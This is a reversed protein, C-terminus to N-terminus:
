KTKVDNEISAIFADVGALTDIVEVRFGMSRFEEIRKVQIKTPKRGQSKLEVLITVGGPLYVTRDPMGNDFSVGNKVAKGGLRSVQDRLRAEIAKESDRKKSSPVIPCYNGMNAHFDRNPTNNNAHKM